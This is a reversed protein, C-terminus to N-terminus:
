SLRRFVFRGMPAVSSGTSVPPGTLRQIPQPPATVRDAARYTAGSDTGADWPYLDVSREQVWAGDELLSLGAVGVFWDPSPAVM